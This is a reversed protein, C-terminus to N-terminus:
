RDALPLGRRLPIRAADMTRWINFAFSMAGGSSLLGGAGLLVTGLPLLEAGSARAVFGCVMAALGVNATVLHFATHVRGDRPERTLAQRPARRM